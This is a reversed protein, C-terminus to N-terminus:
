HVGFISQNSFISLPICFHGRFDSILPAHNADLVGDKKLEEIIVDYVVGLDFDPMSLSDKINKKDEGGHKKDVSSQKKDDEAPKKRKVAGMQEQSSIISFM